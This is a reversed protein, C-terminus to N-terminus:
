QAERLIEGDDYFDHFIGLSDFLNQWSQIFHHVAPQDSQFLNSDDEVPRSFCSARSRVVSRRAFKGNVQAAPTDIKFAHAFSNAELRQEPYAPVSSSEQCSVQRPTM